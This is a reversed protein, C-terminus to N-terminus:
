SSAKPPEVSGWGSDAPAVATRLEGSAVPPEVSGWGSDDTTAAVTVAHLATGDAVSVAGLALLAATIVATVPRRVNM